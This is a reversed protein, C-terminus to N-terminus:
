CGDKCFLRFLLAIIFLAHSFDHREQKIREAFQVSMEHGHHGGRFIFSVTGAWM